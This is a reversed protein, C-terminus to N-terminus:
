KWHILLYGSVLLFGIVILIEGLYLFTCRFFGCISWRLKKIYEQHSMPGDCEEAENKRDVAVPKRKQRHKPKVATAPEDATANGTVINYATSPFFLLIDDFFLWLAYSFQLLPVFFIIGRLNQLISNLNFQKNYAYSPNKYFNSRTGM